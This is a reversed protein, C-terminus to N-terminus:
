TPVQASVTGIALELTEEIADETAAATTTM